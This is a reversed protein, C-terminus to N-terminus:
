TGAGWKRLESIRAEVDRIAADVRSLGAPRESGELETKWLALHRITVYLERIAAEAGARVARRVETATPSPAWASPWTLGRAAPISM